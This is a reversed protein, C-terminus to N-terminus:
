FFKIPNAPCGVATCNSPIDKVVVSGAGIITNSGVKLGQIIQTGTGLEVSSDIVTNGSINVSPYMTVFNSVKADHGITCCLNIIVHNCIEIDVTLVSNACIICGNGIKVRNSMVVSPDILTAFKIKPNISLLDAVVKERTRSTGISCIFFSEIYNISDKISGLYPYDGIKKETLYLNDDIFGLINWEKKKLNIREILWAVERGFGGAGVIVINKM